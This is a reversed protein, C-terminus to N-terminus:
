EQVELNFDDAMTYVQDLEHPYGNIYLKQAEVEAQYQNEKKSFYVFTAESKITPDLTEEDIVVITIPFVAEYKNM